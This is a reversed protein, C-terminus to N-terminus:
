LFEKIIYFMKFDLGFEVHRDHDDGDDDDDDNHHDDDVGDSDPCNSTM